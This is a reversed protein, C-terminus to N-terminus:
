ASIYLEFVTHAKPQSRDTRQQQVELLHHEEQLGVGLTVVLTTSILLYLIIQFLLAISSAQRCAGKSGRGGREAVIGRLSDLKVNTPRQWWM